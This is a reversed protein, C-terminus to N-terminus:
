RAEKWVKLLSTIIDIDNTKPSYDLYQRAAKLFQRRGINFTFFNASLYSFSM